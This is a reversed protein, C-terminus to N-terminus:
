GRKQKIEIQNVKCDGDDYILYLFVDAYPDGEMYLGREPNDSLYFRVPCESVRGNDFNQGLIFNNFVRLNGDSDRFDYLFLALTFLNDKKIYPELSKGEIYNLCFNKVTNNVKDSMCSTDLSGFGELYPYVGPYNSEAASAFINDINISVDETIGDCGEIKREILKKNNVEIWATSEELSLATSKLSSYDAVTEHHKSKQCSSLCLLCYFVSLFLLVSKKM